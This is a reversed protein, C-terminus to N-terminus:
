LPLKKIKLHTALFKFAYLIYTTKILIFCTMLLVENRMVSDVRTTILCNLLGNATKTNSAGRM